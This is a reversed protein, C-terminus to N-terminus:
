LYLSSANRKRELGEFLADKQLTFCDLLYAGVNSYV